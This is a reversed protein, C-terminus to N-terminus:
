ITFLNTIWQSIVQIKEVLFAKMFNKINLSMVKVGGHVHYIKTKWCDKIFYTRKNCDKRYSKWNRTKLSQSHSKTSLQKHISSLINQHLFAM